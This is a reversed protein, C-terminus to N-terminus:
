ILHPRLSIGLSRLTTVPLKEMNNTILEVLAKGDMVEINNDKAFQRTEDDVSASTIFFGDYDMYQEQQLVDIIQQIGEKGSFGSHHKVQVFIKKSMFYDEKIAQIDADAKGSFKTKALVKADYGECQMLECVLKELGIGGTQLNTNGNQINQLLAEKLENLEQEERMKIEHTYSYSQRSFITEIEDKFEFLTNVTMGRVRLRRQLGESLENRSIKLLENNYYRYSVKRQNALDRVEDKKSYIEGDEVVAILIDSNYPIIIYDGKKMDKFRAVENLNQSVKIPSKDKGLYYVENVKERLRDSNSYKTFDVESWGVAVVSNDLFVKFDEDESAMARVMYYNRGMYIRWKKYFSKIIIECFLDYLYM